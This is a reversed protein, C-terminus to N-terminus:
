PSGGIRSQPPRRNSRPIYLARLTHASSTNRVPSRTFTTLVRKPPLLLKSADMLSTLSNLRRRNFSMLAANATSKFRVACGASAEAFKESYGTGVGPLSGVKIVKPGSPLRQNVSFPPLLIPFIVVLPAKVSYATGVGSPPGHSMVTPGSPLNHNVSILLFLIPFTVTVPAKVSYGTGLAVKLLSGSPMVAPGSPLRQNVSLSLTVPMPSM